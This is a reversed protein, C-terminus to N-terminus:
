ALSASKPTNFKGTTQIYVNRTLLMEIWIYFQLIKNKSEKVYWHLLDVQTAFKQSDHAPNIQGRIVYSYSGSNNHPWNSIAWRLKHFIVLDVIAQLNSDGFKSCFYNWNLSWFLTPIFFIILNCGISWHM